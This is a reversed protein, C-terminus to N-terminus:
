PTTPEPRRLRRLLEPLNQIVVILRSNSERVMAFTRGDPSVDYNSHPTATAMDAVGFLTRRSTVVLDPSTQLDVVVM